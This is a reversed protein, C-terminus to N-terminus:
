KAGLAKLQEEAQQRLHQDKSVGLVTKFDAIAKEKEGKQMYANGRDYYADTLDPKLTIAQDFDAIAREYDGKNSLTRYNM